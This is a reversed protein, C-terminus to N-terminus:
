AGALVELRDLDERRGLVILIDGPELTAAPAPNFVMKGSSKKIGVVILGHEHRLRSTELTTGALPSTAAIRAEEINLELHETRTALELFDVVTPRLVAQAV